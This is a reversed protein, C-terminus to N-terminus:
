IGCKVLTFAISERTQVPRTQENFDFFRVSLRHKGASVEPYVNDKGAVIVRILQVPYHTEIAQDYFGNEATKRERDASQRILQLAFKAAEEVPQFPELWRKLTAQRVSAPLMTWHSYSPIDFDISGNAVSFRQQIMNFLVDSKLHSGLPTPVSHLREILSAQKELVDNLRQQDIADSLDQHRKLSLHQREIEKMVDGRIDGRSTLNIIDILTGILAHADWITNEQLHHRARAFLKEIRLFLRVREGIPQEYTFEAQTDTQTAQVPNDLTDIPQQTIDSVQALSTYYQHLEKVKVELEPLPLNNLITDNAIALRENRSAQTKMIAQVEDRSLGNRKMVREIQTDEDIDVVLVRDIFDSVGTEVLLPIVILCYAADLQSIQDQIAQFIVPHLISELQAKKDPDTFVLRRVFDRNMRGTHDLIQGGFAELLQTLAPQGPEVAQHAIVDADIISVGFKEFLNAVTTKGSGIGGTIAVTLM